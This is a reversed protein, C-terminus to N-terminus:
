KRDCTLRTYNFAGKPSVDAGKVYPKILFGTKWHYLPTLPLEEAFLATAQRLTERREALTADVFSKELLQIFTAHEWAPYNKVNTKYKFRELINMPDYYQALWITQGLDYTRESLQSILMKHEHAQLQVTIGLTEAWQSQLVQAIDRNLESVSYIYVVEPFQDRTIGLEQLGLSFYKKALEANHQPFSPGDEPTFLPPLMTTAAIEGIQTINEVIEQRHIALSFAKRINKNHFPFRNTNFTVFTTGALEQTQLVGQRFFQAQADTPISSIGLGLIDLQGHEYLKLATKEDPIVAIQIRSLSVEQSEWYLPNRQLILEDNQKWKQLRFPGNCIFQDPQLAWKPKEVDLHLPVPCFVCFSVLDLFFPTPHHLQVVLTKADIAHIGVDELSGSGRKAAEAGQIPYLLFANPAPFDPTLIKKWAAAFDYATVPRGDSWFTDRLYFTYKLRDKSIEINRAQAPSVSGDSNVRTLGEFLMFQLVSSILEGGKRPDLTAPERSISIRLTKSKSVSSDGTECGTFFILLLFFAILRHVM